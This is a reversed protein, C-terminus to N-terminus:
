DVATMAATNIVLEPQHQELMADVADPQTLDTAARTTLILEHNELLPVLHHGLQGNAGTLLIRM